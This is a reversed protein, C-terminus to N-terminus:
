VKDQKGSAPHKSDEASPDLWESLPQPFVVADTVLDALSMTGRIAM